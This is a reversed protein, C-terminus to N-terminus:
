HLPTCLFDIMNEQKGGATVEYRIKPLQPDFTWKATDGSALGLSALIGPNVKKSVSFPARDDDTDVKGDSWDLDRPDAALGNKNMVVVRATSDLFLGIRTGAGICVQWKQSPSRCEFLPQVDQINQNQPERLWLTCAERAKIAMKDAELHAEDGTVDDEEEAGACGILAVAGVLAFTVLYSLRRLASAPSTHM